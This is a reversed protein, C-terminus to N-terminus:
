RKKEPLQQILDELEAKMEDRFKHGWAGHGPFIWEFHYSRLKKVSEVQEPWSYWCVGRSVRLKQEDRDYFIHDGTFLYIDKYLLVMSGQTHGPTPIIKVDRDLDWESKGELIIECGMTGENVDARHIIRQCGFHKAFLEHDAVDDQHTLFMTAIGGLKEIEEVLHPHFRPSDILINGEPRQILYTSAGFSDKSTYGCYHINHCILMPLEIHAEKFQHPADKVGISNTPCSVIAMKAEKWERANQPQSEVISKDEVEKFIGPGLHFCMGCDICSTDM